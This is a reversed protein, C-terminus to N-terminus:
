LKTRLYYKFLKPSSVLEKLSVQKNDTLRFQMKKYSSELIKELEAHPFLKRELNGKLISQIHSKYDKSKHTPTVNKALEFHLVEMGPRYIGLDELIMKYFALYTLEKKILMNADENRSTVRYYYLVDSLSTMKVESKLRYLLQYDEMLHFAKSYVPNLGDLVCSRIMLTPHSVSHGFVMSGWNVDCNQEYNIVSDSEGFHQVSSGLISVQPNNDLFIVQKELREPHMYDDGDLRAIYEAKALKIGLNLSDVIGSNKEKKHLRFRPDDFSNFIEISNDTSGDDIMILEFDHFTQAVVTDLCKKLYDENNYNPLLICVRAMKEM